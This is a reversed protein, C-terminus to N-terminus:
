RMTPQTSSKNTRFRQYNMTLNTGAGLPDQVAGNWFRADIVARPHGRGTCRPLYQTRKKHQTHVLHRRCCCSHVSDSPHCDKWKRSHHVYVLIQSVLLAPPPQSLWAALLARGHISHLFVSQIHWPQQTSRGRGNEEAASAIIHM